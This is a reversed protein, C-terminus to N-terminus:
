CHSPRRFNVLDNAPIHHSASTPTPVFTPVQSKHEQDTTDDSPSRLGAGREFEPISQTPGEALSPTGLRVFPRGDALM